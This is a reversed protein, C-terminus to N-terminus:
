FKNRYIWKDNNKEFYATVNLPWTGSTGYVKATLSVTAQLTAKDGNVTIIPNDIEYEFYNLTGNRIEEFYEGKTQTRGSMHTFTTGDKVIEDLKNMDKDIMAKQMEEYRGLVADEENKNSKTDEKELEIEKGNELIMSGEVKFQEAKNRDFDNTTRATMHYPISHKAKVVDAAQMAEDLGMNYIGDCCFFAYDINKEALELMQKTMSTDGTIYISIGDSLTIIYGVCENVDHYSNYGAEVAEVTAYGLNFTQHVGNIIADKSRIIQCDSNRNKILDINNHDFHEHTVLILDAPLDYGDGGYPDIYIIKGEKTTIRISAKGQYYLTANENQIINNIINEENDTNQMTNGVSENNNTKTNWFYIELLIILIFIIVLIIYVKKM